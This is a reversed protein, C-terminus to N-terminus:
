QESWEVISGFQDLALNSHWTMELFCRSCYRISLWDDSGAGVTESSHLCLGSIKCFLPSGEWRIASSYQVMVPCVWVSWADLQVGGLTLPNRAHVAQSQSTGSALYAVLRGKAYNTHTNRVVYLYIYKECHHEPKKRTAATDIISYGTLRTRYTQRTRSSAM